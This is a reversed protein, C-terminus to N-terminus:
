LYELHKWYAIVCFHICLSLNKEKGKEKGLSRAKYLEREAFLRSWYDIDQLNNMPKEACM